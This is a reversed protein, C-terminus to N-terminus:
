PATPCSEGETINVLDALSGKRITRVLSLVGARNVQRRALKVGTTDVAHAATGMAALLRARVIPGADEVALVLRWLDVLDDGITAANTKEVRTEARKLAGFDAVHDSLEPPEDAELSAAFAECKGWMVDILEAVEDTRDIVYERFDLWPGLVAFHVRALDPAMALQWLAQVLYHMPVQDTGPEGWEDWSTTTKAEVAVATLTSAVDPVEAVADLNAAAWEVGPLKVLAQCEIIRATPNDAEWWDLVSSELLNGRRMAPTEADPRDLGKMKRWMSLPSDYPSVGLIAAVKSATVVRIWEPSGPTLTDTM